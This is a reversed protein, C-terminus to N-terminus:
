QVAERMCLGLSAKVKGGHYRSLEKEEQEKGKTIGTRNSVVCHGTTPPM